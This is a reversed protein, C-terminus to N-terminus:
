EIFCKNKCDLNKLSPNGGEAVVNSYSHLLNVFYYQTSHLKVYGAGKLEMQFIWIWNKMTFIFIQSDITDNPVGEPWSGINDTPM